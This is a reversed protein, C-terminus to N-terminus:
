KFILPTVSAFGPQYLTFADKLQTGNVHSLVSRIVGGHTVICYNKHSSLSGLFEMVRKHLQLFSEGGPAPISVFNDMWERSEQQPIADWSKMEWRGFHMEKLRADTIFSQKRRQAIEGALKMCRKLPSSIIDFDDTPLQDLVSSLEQLFTEGVDINSQGYCIGKAIDPNTHRVLYLNM